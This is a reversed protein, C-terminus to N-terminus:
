IYRQTPCVVVVVVSLSPRSTCVQLEPLVHAAYFEVINVFPNTRSAGHQSMTTTVSLATVLYVAVDKARWQMLVALRENM